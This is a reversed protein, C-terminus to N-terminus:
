LWIFCVQGLRLEMGWECSWRLSSAWFGASSAELDFDSRLGGSNTTSASTATRTGASTPSTATASSTATATTRGRQDPLLAYPRMWPHIIYEFIDVNKVRRREREFKFLSQFSGPNKGQFSKKSEDTFHFYHPFRESASARGFSSLASLGWWCCQIEFSWLYLISSFFNSKGEKDIHFYHDKKKILSLRHFILPRM